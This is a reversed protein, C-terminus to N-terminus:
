LVAERYTLLISGTGSYTLPYTGRQNDESGSRSLFLEPLDRYVSPSLARSVGAFTINVDGGTVTLVPAVARRGSNILTATQPTVTAQLVVVTETNNYRWPDCKATVRVSAHALDNYLREVRVRGKIHHTPDDPLVIDFRWGDLQNQMTRIREEREARTGESSEFTAALARSGYRPDGDTLATSADLLGDIRGPIDLFSEVLTPASLEWGTLTWLGTLATDYTGIIIKRKEM